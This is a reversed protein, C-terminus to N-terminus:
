KNDLYEVVAPLINQEVIVKYGKANPHLMDNQNFEPKGAVHELFFPILPINHKKALLPYINKFDNVYDKGLNHYIQMGSLIVDSDAQKIKLIIEDINNTTLKVPLGRMADNAGITLITLDPNQKLVWDLRNKLGSSTEGSLGANIVVINKPLSSQLQSPYNKAEPVGLGETLSDGLALITFNKEIKQTPLSIAQESNNCASLTFLFIIILYKM